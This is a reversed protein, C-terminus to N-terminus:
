DAAVRITSVRLSSRASSVYGSSASNVAAACRSDLGGSLCRSLPKLIRVRQHYTYSMKRHNRRPAKSTLPPLPALAIASRLASGSRIRLAVVAAVRHSSTYTSYRNGTSIYPLPILCFHQRVPYGSDYWSPASALSRRSRVFVGPLM